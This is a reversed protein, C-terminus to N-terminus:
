EYRWSLVVLLFSVPIQLAHQLEAPQPTVHANLEARVKSHTVTQSVEVGYLMKYTSYLLQVM